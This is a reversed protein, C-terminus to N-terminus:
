HVQVKLVASATKGNSTCQYKILYRGPKSTNVKGTYTVNGILNNNNEDTAYLIYADPDFTGGAAMKVSSYKLVIVPGTVKLNFDTEVKAQESNEDEVMFNARFHLMQNADAILNCTIDDSIDNGNADLAVLAGSEVYVDELHDLDDQTITPVKSEDLTLSPGGKTSAATTTPEPTAAAATETEEPEESEEGTLDEQIEPAEATIGEDTADTVEESEEPAATEEVTSEYLEMAEATERDERSSTTGNRRLAVLIGINVLSLIVLFIAITRGNIRGNNNKM